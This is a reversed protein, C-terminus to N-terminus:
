SGLGVLASGGVREAEVYPEVDDVAKEVVKIPDQKTKDDLNQM